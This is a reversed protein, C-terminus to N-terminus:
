FDRKARAEAEADTMGSKQYSALPYDSVKPETRSNYFASALLWWGAYMVVIGAAALLLKKPDLALQFGKFLETWPLVQRYNVDRLEVKEEVMGSEKPHRRGSPSKAIEFHANYEPIWGVGVPPPRHAWARFF